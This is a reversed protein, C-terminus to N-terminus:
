VFILPDPFVGGSPNAFPDGNIFSIKPVRGSPKNRVGNTFFKAERCSPCLAHCSNTACCSPFQRCLKLSECVAALSLAVLMLVAISRVSAMTEFEIEPSLSLPSTINGHPHPLTHM